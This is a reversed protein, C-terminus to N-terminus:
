IGNLLPEAYDNTASTFIILEYKKKMEDLFELLGPRLRLLGNNKEPCLKFSILTEDLDLVLSFKKLLKTTIFPVKIKSFQTPTGGGMCPPAGPMGVISANENLIKFIKQAFFFNLDQISIMSLNNYIDILNSKLDDNNSM